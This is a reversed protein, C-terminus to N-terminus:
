RRLGRKKPTRRRGGGSAPASSRPPPDSTQPGAGGGRPPLGHGARKPHHQDRRLRGEIQDSQALSPLMHGVQTGKDPSPARRRQGKGSFTDLSAQTQRTPFGTTGPPRQLPSDPPRLRESLLQHGTPQLGPKSPTQEVTTLMIRTLGHQEIRARRQAFHPGAQRQDLGSGQVGTATPARHIRVREKSREFPPQLSLLQQRPLQTPAQRTASRAINWPSRSAARRANEALWSRSSCSSIKCPFSRAVRRACGQRIRM